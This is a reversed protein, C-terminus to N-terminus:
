HVHTQARESTSSPRPRRAHQLENPRLSDSMVSNSFPISTFYDIKLINFNFINKLYHLHIILILKM